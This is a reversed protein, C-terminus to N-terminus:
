LKEPNGPVFRISLVCSGSQQLCSYLTGQLDWILYCFHGENQLRLEACVADGEFWWVGTMTKGDNRRVLREREDRYYITTINGPKATGMPALLITYSTNGLALRKFEAAGLQRGGASRVESVTMPKPLQALAPASDLVGVCLALALSVLGNRMCRRAVAGLMGTRTCRGAISFTM